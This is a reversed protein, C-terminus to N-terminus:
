VRFQAVIDRLGEGLNALEISAASTQEAASASQESSDQINNLSRSIGETVSRQQLVASSIQVNMQSITSVANTIAVLSEGAYGAQEVTSYTHDRSQTMVTVAEAAGDQLAVILTEIEITSKQTRQALTRVEDAVVAFGRGQEGARAAEIAANLALLNTQEAVSKIVDLMSGINGSVSKLKEIVVATGEVGKALDNIAAVTNKVVQNGAAADSEAQTAASSAKETNHAVEHVTSTMENMAGTVSEIEKKQEVVTASTQETVASLEEAATALQETTNIIKIIVARLKEVFLNFNTGLEGIDDNSDAPVRKTLDGEGEAIDKLVANTQRLPVVIGRMVVYAITLGLLSAILILLGISNEATSVQKKAEESENILSAFVYERLTVSDDAIMPGYKDLIDTIAANRAYIAVGVKDFADIYVSITQIAEQVLPNLLEDILVTQLQELAARTENLEALAQKKSAEDNDVLFRFVHFRGLLLHRQALSSYYVGQVDGASYQSDMIQSLTAELAPGKENLVNKVLHHRQNMNSVVTNHFAATYQKNLNDINDLIKVSQPEKVRQRAQYITEKLEEELRDFREINKEASTKIYEKVQLRKLYILSMIDAAIGAEPEVDHTIHKIKNEIDWLNGLAIAGVALMLCIILLPSAMIKTSIQLNRFMKFVGIVM